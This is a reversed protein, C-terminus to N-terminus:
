TIARWLADGVIYAVFRLVRTVRKDRLSDDVSTAVDLLHRLSVAVAWDEKGSSTGQGVLWLLM